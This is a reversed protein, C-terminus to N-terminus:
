CCPEATLILIITCSAATACKLPRRWSPAAELGAGLTEPLTIRLAMRSPSVTGFNGAFGGYVNVGEYMKFAQLSDVDGYYTGAAVWITVTTDYIRRIEAALRLADSFSGMSNTWSSGNGSGTVTVYLHDMMAVPTTFSATKWSSNESACVSRVRVNYQTNALLGNLVYQTDTVSIEASWDSDTAKKYQLTYSGIPMTVNNVQWTILESSGTLGYGNVSSPTQCFYAQPTTFQVVDGYTTEGMYTM